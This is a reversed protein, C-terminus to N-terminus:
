KQHINKCSLDAVPFNWKRNVALHRWAHICAHTNKTVTFGRPQGWVNGLFSCSLMETTPSRRSDNLPRHKIMAKLFITQLWISNWFFCCCGLISLLSRTAMWGVWFLPALYLSHRTLLLNTIDFLYFNDYTWVDQNVPKTTSIEIFLWLKYLLM